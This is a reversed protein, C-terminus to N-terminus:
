ASISSHIAMAKELSDEQGLCRVQTEQMEPLHKVTQAVPSAGTSTYNIINTKPICCLFEAIYIYTYVCM